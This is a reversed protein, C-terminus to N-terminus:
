KSQSKLAKHTWVAGALDVLGFVLVIAQVLQLGVIVVYFLFVSARGWVSLRIFEHISKKGAILYYYGLLGILWGAIRVWIEETLPLRFIGLITNPFIVLGIGVFVTYIGFYYLSKGSSTM